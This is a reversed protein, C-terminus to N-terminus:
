MWPKSESSQDAESFGVRWNASATLAAQADASLTSENYDFFADQIDPTEGNDRLAFRGGSSSVARPVARCRAVIGVRPSPNVLRPNLRDSPM